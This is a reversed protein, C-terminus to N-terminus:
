RHAARGRQRRRPSRCRTPDAFSNLMVDCGAEARANATAFGIEGMSGTISASKGKLM